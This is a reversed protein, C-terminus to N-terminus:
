SRPSGAVPATDIRHLLRPIPSPPSPPLGGLPSGEPFLMQVIHTLLGTFLRRMSNSQFFVQLVRIIKQQLIASKCHQMLKLHVAFHNLYM